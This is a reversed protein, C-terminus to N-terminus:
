LHGLSSAYGFVAIWGLFGGNFWTDIITILIALASLLLFNRGHRRVDESYVYVRSGDPLTKKATRVLAGTVILGLIGTLIISLYAVWPWIAKGESPQALEQIREQDMRELEGDTFTIGKEKLLQLAAQDPLLM